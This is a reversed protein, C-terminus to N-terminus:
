DELEDNVNNDKAFENFMFMTYNECERKLKQFLNLIEYIDDESVPTSIQCCNYFLYIHENIIDIKYFDDNLKFAVSWGCINSISIDYEDINDILKKLIKKTVEVM